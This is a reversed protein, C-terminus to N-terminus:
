AKVAPDDLKPNLAILRMKIAALMIPDDKLMPDRMLMAHM